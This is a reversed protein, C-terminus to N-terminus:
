FLWAGVLAAIAVIAIIEIVARKWSEGGVQIRSREQVSASQHPLSGDNTAKEKLLQVARKVDSRKVQVKIGGFRLRGLGGLMSGREDILSCEVGASELETTIRGADERSRVTAITVFGITSKETAKAM